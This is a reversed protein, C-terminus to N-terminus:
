YAGTMNICLGSSKGLDTLEDGSLERNQHLEIM